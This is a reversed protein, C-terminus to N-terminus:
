LRSGRVVHGTLAFEVEGLGEWGVHIEDGAACSGPPALAVAGTIVVDGEVIGWGRASLDNVVEVINARPDTAPAPGAVGTAVERAHAEDARKASITIKVGGM